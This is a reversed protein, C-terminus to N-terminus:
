FISGRGSGAGSGSMESGVTCFTGSGCPTNQSNYETSIWTSARPVNAIRMEDMNGVVGNSGGGVGGANAMYLFGTGTTMTDSYAPTGHSDLVGDIYFSLKNSGATEDVTAAVHHWGNLPIVANGLSFGSNGGFFELKGDVGDSNVGTIAFIYDWPAGDDISKSILWSRHILAYSTMYVWTSLTIKSTIQLSTSNPADLSSGTGATGVFAIAENVQGAIASTAGNTGCEAGNANTTSDSVDGPSTCSSGNYATPVHYVAAFTSDWTGSTNGQYTSITVNGYCIYIVASATLSPVQVWDTIAGTSAGYSGTETEYNLPSTCASSVSYIHDFGSSNQLRGGNAVTKLYSGGVYLMPFNVNTGSALSGSVTLSRAYTYGGGQAWCPMSLLILLLLGKM